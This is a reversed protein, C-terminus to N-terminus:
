TPAPPMKPDLACYFSSLVDDSFPVLRVYRENRAIVAPLAYHAAGPDLLASM